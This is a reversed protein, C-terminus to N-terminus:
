CLRIFNKLLKLGNQLSKEPHFQTGFVNQSGVVSVFEGGYSTRALVYEDSCEFHYSHVFYFDTEDPIDEFLPSKKLYTVDNWGMHPIRLASDKIEFRVVEGPILGLGSCHRGETGKTSLLQMGLCIGLLPMGVELVSYILPAVFGRQELQHMGDSYSGVGPLIIGTADRLKSPEDIVHASHGCEEVARVVSDLNCLGYDIIALVSM